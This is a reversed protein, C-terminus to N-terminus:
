VKFIRSLLGKIWRVIANTEKAVDEHEEVTETTETPILEELQKIQALANELEKTLTENDKALHDKDMQLQNKADQMQDCKVDLRNVYAGIQKGDKDFYRTKDDKTWSVTIKSPEPTPTPTPKVVPFLKSNWKTPNNIMDILTPLQEYIQGPCNGTIFCHNNQRVLFAGSKLTVCSVLMEEDDVLGINKVPITRKLRKLFNLRYNFKDNKYECTISSEGKYMQHLAMIIGISQENNNSYYAGKEHLCGDAQVLEAYVLSYQDESLLIWKYPFQKEDLRSIINQSLWDCGYIKIKTTGDSQKNEKYEKKLDDLIEKIRKIKREKSLHFEVSEIVRHGDIRTAWNYHGDAQVWVLFKLLSDTIELGKQGKFKSFSPIDFITNIKQLVDKLPEIIINGKSTERVVRHDMTVEHGMLNYVDDIWPDLVNEVKQWEMEKKEPLYAMIEDEIKIDKLKIWGQKTLLDTTEIPLPATAAFDKHGNIWFQGKLEIDKFRFTDAVLMLAKEPLKKNVYNGATEIGISQQNIPWNSAHWCVNNWPDKLLLTLRWGYKNKDTTYTHLCYHAQTFTEQNRSPHNHYSRSYGAYGRTKGVNSFWDQVRTDTWNVMDDSVAHHMVIRNVPYKRNGDAM